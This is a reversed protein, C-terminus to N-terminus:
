SCTRVKHITGLIMMIIKYTM